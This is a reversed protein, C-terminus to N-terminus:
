CTLLKLNVEESLREKEEIARQKSWEPEIIEYGCCFKETTFSECNECYFDEM